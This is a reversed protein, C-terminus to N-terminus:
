FDLPNTRAAQSFPQENKFGWDPLSPNDYLGMEKNAQAFLESHGENTPANALVQSSTININFDHPVQSTWMTPLYQPCIEAVFLTQQKRIQSRASSVESGNLRLALYSQTSFPIPTGPM